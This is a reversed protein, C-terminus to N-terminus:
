DGCTKSKKGMQEIYNKTPAQQLEKSVDNNGIFVVLSDSSRIPLVQFRDIKQGNVYGTVKDYNISYKINEFLDQWHADEREIHIVDGVNDHLHAKELQDNENEENEKGNITCPKEYMYKFDSFNVKKNDKFVIFGAHYHVKKEPIFKNKLIYASTAILVLLFFLPIIYKLQLLKKM